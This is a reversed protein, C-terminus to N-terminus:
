CRYPPRFPEATASSNWAIAGYASLKSGINTNIMCEATAANWRGAEVATEERITCSATTAPQGETPTLPKLTFSGGKVKASIFSPNYIKITLRVGVMGYSVARSDIVAACAAIDTGTPLENRLVVPPAGDPVDYWHHPPPSPPPFALDCFKIECFRVLGLADQATKVGGTLAGIDLRDPRRSLATMVLIVVLVAILPALLMHKSALTTPHSRVLMACVRDSPLNNLKALDILISRFSSFHQACAQKRNKSKM